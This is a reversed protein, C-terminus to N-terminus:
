VITELLRQMTAVSANLDDIMSRVRADLPRNRVPGGGEFLDEGWRGVLVHNPGCYFWVREAERLELLLRRIEPTLVGRALDPDSAQVMFASDFASDGENPVPRTSVSQGDHRVTVSGQVQSQGTSDRPIVAVVGAGSTVRSFAFMQGAFDTVSKEEDGEGVTHSLGMEFFGIRRDDELACEFLDRIRPTGELSFLFPHAEDMVPHAAVDMQYRLGAMESAEALVGAKLAENVKMFGWTAAGWTFLAGILLLAVGVILMDITYFYYFQAGLILAGIALVIWFRRAAARRRTELLALGARVASSQMLRDFDDGNLARM